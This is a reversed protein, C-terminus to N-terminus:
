QDHRTGDPSGDNRRIRSRDSRHVDNDCLVSDRIIIPVGGYKEGIEMYDWYDPIYKKPDWPIKVVRTTNKM